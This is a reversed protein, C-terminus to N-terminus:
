LHSGLICVQLDKPLFLSNLNHCCVRAVSSKRAKRVGYHSWIRMCYALQVKQQPRQGFSLRKEVNSMKKHQVGCAHTRANHGNVFETLASTSHLELGSARWTYVRPKCCAFTINTRMHLVLGDASPGGSYESWWWALLTSSGAHGLRHKLICLNM